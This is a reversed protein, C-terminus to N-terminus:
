EQVCNQVDALKRYDLQITKKNETKVKYSVQLEGTKLDDSMVLRSTIKLVKGEEVSFNKDEHHVAANENGSPSFIHSDFTLNGESKSNKLVVMRNKIVLSFTSQENDNSFDCVIAEAEENIVEVPESPNEDAVDENVAEDDPTEEEAIEEDIVENESILPITVEQENGVIGPSVLGVLPEGMLTQTQSQAKKGGDACSVSLCLISLLLLQKM